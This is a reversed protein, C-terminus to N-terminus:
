LKRLEFSVTDLPWKQMTTLDSQVELLNKLLQLHKKAKRKLLETLISKFMNPLYGIEGEILFSVCTTNIDFAGLRYRLTLNIPRALLKVEYRECSEKGTLLQRNHQLNWSLLGRCTMANADLNHLSSFVEFIPRKILITSRATIM